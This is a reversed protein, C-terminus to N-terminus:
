NTSSRALFTISSSTAMRRSITGSTPYLNPRCELRHSLKCLRVIESQPSRPREVPLFLGRLNVTLSNILAHYSSEYIRELYEENVVKVFKRVSNSPIYKQCFVRIICLVKRSLENERPLPTDALFNGIENLFRTVLEAQHPTGCDGIGKAQRWSCFLYLRHLTLFVYPVITNTFLMEVAADNDFSELESRVRSFFTLICERSTELWMEKEQGISYGPCLKTSSAMVISVPDEGSLGTGFQKQAPHAKHSWPAPYNSKDFLRDHVLRKEVVIFPTLWGPYDTESLRTYSIITGTGVQFDCSSLTDPVDMLFRVINDVDEYSLSQHLYLMKDIEILLEVKDVSLKRMVCRLRGVKGTGPRVHMDGSLILLPTQGGMRNIDEDTLEYLYDMHIMRLISTPNNKMSMVIISNNNTGVIM